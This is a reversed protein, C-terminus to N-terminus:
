VLVAVRYLLRRARPLAPCPPNPNQTAPQRSHARANQFRATGRRRAGAGAGASACAGGKIEHQAYAVNMEETIHSGDPTLADLVAVEPVKKKLAARWDFAMKRPDDARACPHPNPRPPHTPTPPCHRAAQGRLVWCAQRRTRAGRRARGCARRGGVRGRGEGTVLLTGPDVLMKGNQPLRITKMAAVIKASISPTILYSRDSFFTPTVRMGRVDIVTVPVKMGSLLKRDAEIRAKTKTDIVMSMFAAPPFKTFPPFTDPLIGLAESMVGKVSPMTAALKLAFSGGSSVGVVYLPKGRLGYKDQWAPVAKYVYSRDVKWAWCGGGAKFDTNDANLSLVAYGM